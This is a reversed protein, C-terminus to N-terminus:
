VRCVHVQSAVLNRVACISAVSAWDPKWVSYGIEVHQISNLLRFLICHKSNPLRILCCSVTFLKNGQHLNNSFQYHKMTHKLGTSHLTQLRIPCCIVTFLKNGQHLNNSFQYHKMAHKLGISHLTQLRISSCIVTFHKNGQHLNNCFQYHKMTHKLGISHVTPLM